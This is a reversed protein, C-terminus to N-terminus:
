LKWIQTSNSHEKFIAKNETRYLLNILKKNVQNFSWTKEAIYKQFLQIQQSDSKYQENYNAFRQPLQKDKEENYRGYNAFYMAMSYPNIHSFKLALRKSITDTNRKFGQVLPNM